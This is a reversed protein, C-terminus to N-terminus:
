LGKRFASDLDRNEAIGLYAITATRIPQQAGAPFAAAGLAFIFLLRRRTIVRDGQGRPVAGVGLDEGRAGERDEHQDGARLRPSSSRFIARDLEGFFRTWM